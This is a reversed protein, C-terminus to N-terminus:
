RDVGRNHWVLKKGAAVKRYMALGSVQDGQSLFLSKLCTQPHDESGKMCRSRIIGRIGKPTTGHMGTVRASSSDGQLEEGQRMSNRKFGLRWVGPSEYSTVSLFLSEPEIDGVEHMLKKLRLARPLPM